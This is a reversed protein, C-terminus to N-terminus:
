KVNSSRYIEIMEKVLLSITETNMLQDEAHMLMLSFNLQEGSAERQVLSAHMKHGEVFYRKSEEIKEEAVEFNGKKAVNLAELVLSKATGVNSIIKAAVIYYEENTNQNM